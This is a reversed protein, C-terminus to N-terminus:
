LRGAWTYGPTHEVFMLLCMPTSLLMVPLMMALGSSHSSVLVAALPAWPTMQAAVSAPRSLTVPFSKLLMSTLRTSNSTKSKETVIVTTRSQQQQCPNIKNNFNWSISISAFALSSTRLLFINATLLNQVPNSFLLLAFILLLHYSINRKM